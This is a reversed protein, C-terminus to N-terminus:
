VVDIKWCQATRCYCYDTQEHKRWEHMNHSEQREARKKIMDCFLNCSLDRRMNRLM